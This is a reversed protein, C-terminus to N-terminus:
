IHILSLKVWSIGELFDLVDPAKLEVWPADPAVRGNVRFTTAGDGDAQVPILGSGQTDKILDTEVTGVGTQTLKIM